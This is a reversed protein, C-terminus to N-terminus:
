PFGEQGYGYYPVIPSCIDSAGHEAQWRAATTKRDATTKGGAAGWYGGRRPRRLGRRRESPQRGRPRRRLIWQNRCSYSVTRARVTKLPHYMYTDWTWEALQIKSSWVPNQPPPHDPLILDTIMIVGGQCVFLARHCLLLHTM